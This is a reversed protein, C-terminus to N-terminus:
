GNGRKSERYVAPSMGFYAKFAAYFASESRYGVAPAVSAASEGRLLRRAASRMRLEKNKERYGVGYQKKIVRSLQRESLHLMEALTSLPLEKDYSAYLLQEIKYIRGMTSDTVGDPHQAETTYRSVAHHLLSTFYSGALVGNEALFAATFARMLMTLLEDASFSRVEKLFGLVAGSTAREEERVNFSAVLLRAGEPVAEAYHMVQPPVLLFSGARLVYQGKEFHIVTECRDAFFLECWAHAHFHDTLFSARDKRPLDFSGRMLTLSLGEATYEYEFGSRHERTAM